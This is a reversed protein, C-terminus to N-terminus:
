ATAAQTVWCYQGDGIAVEANWNGATDTIDYSADLTCSGSAVAGSAVGYVRITNESGMATEGLAFEPEDTPLITSSGITGDTAYTM